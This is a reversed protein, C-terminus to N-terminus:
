GSQVRWAIEVPYVPYSPRLNGCVGESPHEFACDRIASMLEPKLM